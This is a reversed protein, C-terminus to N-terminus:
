ECGTLPNGASPFGRASLSQFLSLHWPVLQRGHPSRRPTTGGHDARGRRDGVRARGEGPMKIVTKDHHFAWVGIDSGGTERQLANGHGTAARFIYGTQLLLCPGGGKRVRPAQLLRDARDGPRAPFRERVTRCLEFGTMEPMFGDTIVVDYPNKELLDLAKLGDEATVADYGARDMFITLIDRMGPDDDAILVRM